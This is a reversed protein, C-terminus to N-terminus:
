KIKECDVLRWWICYLNHMAANKRCRGTRHRYGHTLWWKLPNPVLIHSLLLLNCWVHVNVPFNLTQFGSIVFRKCVQCSLRKRKRLTLLHITESGSSGMQIYKCLVLKSPLCKQPRRLSMPISLFGQWTLSQTRSEAVQTILLLEDM